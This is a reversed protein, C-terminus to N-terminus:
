GNLVDGCKVCRRFDGGADRMDRYDPICGDEEDDPCYGGSGDCKPCSGHECIM